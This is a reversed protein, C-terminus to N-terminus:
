NTKSKQRRRIFDGLQASVTGAPTKGTFDAYKNELIYECLEISNAIKKLDDL